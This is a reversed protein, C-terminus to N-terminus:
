DARDCATRQTRDHSINSFLRFGHTTPSHHHMPQHSPRVSAMTGRKQGSWPRLRAPWARPPPILRVPQKAACGGAGHHHSVGGDISGQPAGHPMCVIPCRLGTTPDRGHAGRVCAASGLDRWAHQGPMSRGSPGTSIAGRDAEGSAQHAVHRCIAAEVRRLSRSGASSRGEPM